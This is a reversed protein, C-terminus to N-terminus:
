AVTRDVPPTHGACYLRVPLASLVTRTANGQAVDTMLYAPTPGLEGNRNTM